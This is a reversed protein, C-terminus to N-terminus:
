HWSALLYPRLDLVFASYRSRMLAEPTPATLTGSQAHAAHWRGCCAAYLQPHGCPCPTRADPNM